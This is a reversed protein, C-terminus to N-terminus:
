RNSSGRCQLCPSIAVALAVEAAVEAGAMHYLQTVAVRRNFQPSQCHCCHTSSWRRLSKPVRPWHWCGAWTQARGAQAFWSPLLDRPLPATIVRCNLQPAAGAARRENDGSGATCDRGHPCCTWAANAAWSRHPPAAPILQPSAVSCRAFPDGAQIRAPPAQPPAPPVHRRCSPREPRPIFWMGASLSPFVIKHLCSEGLCGGQARTQAAGAM